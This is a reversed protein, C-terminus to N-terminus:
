GVLKISLPSVKLNPSFIIRLRGEHLVQLREYVSEQVARGYELMLLGSSFRSERPLDLFLLEDVVGGEFTIKSLRPLVKFSVEALYYLVFILYVSHFIWINLSYM